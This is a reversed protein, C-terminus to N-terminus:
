EDSDQLHENEAENEIADAVASLDEKQFPGRNLFIVLGQFRNVDRTYYTFM